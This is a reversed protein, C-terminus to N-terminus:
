PTPTSVRNLQDPPVAGWCTLTTGQVACTRSGGAAIAAPASVINTPLPTRSGLPSARGLELSANSGWCQVSGDALVGCGHIWGAALATYTDGGTVATPTLAMDGTGDGLQGSSNYGWCYAAGGTTLGCNHAAGGALSAFAHGGAVAVATDSTVAAGDGLEGEEGRGWCLAADGTTVACTHLWGASVAKFTGGGYIPTPSSRQIRTADGLQGDGNEGWCDVTGDTALACTHRGGATIATYTGGGAVAVPTARPVITGDGLQGDDNAGWCYVTGGQALGCTHYAGASLATFTIAGAVARPTTADTLLGAGLQGDDGAGWCWAQGSGDLSCVHHDGVAVASMGGSAVTVEAAATFGASTGQVQVSGAAQGTVTGDAAVGAAAGSSTFAFAAGPITIGASDVLVGLVSATDGVAMVLDGPVLAAGAPVQRVLIAATDALAGDSAVIRASGTAVAVVWARRGGIGTQTVTAIGPDLSAWSLAAGTAAGGSADRAVANLPLSFTLANITDTAVTIEVAAPVVQITVTDSVDIYPIRGVIRASRSVDTGATVLGDGDVTAADPDLSSWVVPAGDVVAENADMATAMVQATGGAVVTAPAALSLAVARSGPGVYGLEPSLVTPAGADDESSLTVEVPGVSFLVTEGQRAEILLSFSQEGTVEISVEAYLTDQDVPWAIITDIATAGDADEFLVRINDVLSSPAQGEDFRASPAALVPQLAVPVVRTRPMTLPECSGALVALGALLVSRFPRRMLTDM